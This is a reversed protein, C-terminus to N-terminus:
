MCPFSDCLSMAQLLRLSLHTVAVVGHLRSLPLGVSRPLLVDLPPVREETVLRTDTSEVRM